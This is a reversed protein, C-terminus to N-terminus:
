HVSLHAKGLRTFANKISQFTEYLVSHEKRAASRIPAVRSNNLVAPPQMNLTETDDREKLAGETGM